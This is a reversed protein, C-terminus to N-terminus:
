NVFCQTRYRKHLRRWCSSSRTNGVCVHHPQRTQIGHDECGRQSHGSKAQEGWDSWPSYQRDWLIQSFCLLHIYYNWSCSELGHLKNMRDAFCACCCQVSYSTIIGPWSRASVVTHSGWSGQFTVLDWEKTRCTWSEKGYRSPSLVAMWMCGVLSTLV